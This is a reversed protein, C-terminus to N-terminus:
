HKQAWDIADELRDDGRFVEGEMVFSSSGFVGLAMATEIRESLAEVPVRGPDQGM